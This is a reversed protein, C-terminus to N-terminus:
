KLGTILLLTLIEGPEQVEIHIIEYSNWLM